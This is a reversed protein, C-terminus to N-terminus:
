MPEPEKPDRMEAMRIMRLLIARTMQARELAVAAISAFHLMMKEDKESFAIVQLNEDQANIIQLIGVIDDNINKLPITLVSRTTYQSGEDIEKAFSYPKSLDIQYVDPLNLPQGSAAVYGAISKESVPINFTSYILKEGAALRKQLTNNQTYTFHLMDKDRIYISGADANVFRRAETLIREMLIDLDHIQNLDIGLRALADLKEKENLM